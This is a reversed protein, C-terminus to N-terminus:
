CILALLFLFTAVKDRHKACKVIFCMPKDFYMFVNLCFGNFNCLCNEARSTARIYVSLIYFLALELATCYVLIKIITRVPTFKNPDFNKNLLHHHLKFLSCIFILIRFSNDSYRLDISNTFLSILYLYCSRSKIKRWVFKVDIPLIQPFYM